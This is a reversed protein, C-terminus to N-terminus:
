FYVHTSERVSYRPGQWNRQSDFRSHTIFISCTTKNPETRLDGRVVCWEFLILTSNLYIASYHMRAKTLKILCSSLDTVQARSSCCGPATHLLTCFGLHSGFHRLLIKPMIPWSEKHKGLGLSQM